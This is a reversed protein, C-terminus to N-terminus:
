GDGAEGMGALFVDELRAAVAVPRGPHGAAALAAELAPGAGAAAMTVRVRRGARGVAVVGPLREALPILRAPDDAELEFVRDALAQQLELPPALALRRGRHLLLVRDCREAEDLYATSVVVTTGSAVREHIILWLDRRSIPDVGFTPEDLLLLGPDHILACTLALKQKMGGSLAGALRGAFPALGSFAYLRDLREARRPRPVGHLDAYFALNEAVTLDAYLGFRQSMYAHGPKVREPHRGVDIGNVVATGADVRLVGALIRLLTSKGSGDPGVVGFLEGSGVAFDLRDLATVGAFRRTLGAVRVPHAIM